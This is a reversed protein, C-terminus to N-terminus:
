LDGGCARRNGATSTPTETSGIVTTTTAATAHVAHENLGSIRFGVLFLIM